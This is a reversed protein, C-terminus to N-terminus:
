FNGIISALFNKTVFCLSHWSKVILHQSNSEYRYGRTLTNRVQPFHYMLKIVKYKTTLNQKIGLCFLYTPFHGRILGSSNQKIDLATKNSQFPSVTAHKKYIWQEYVKIFDQRLSNNLDPVLLGGFEWTAMNVECIRKKLLLKLGTLEILRKLQIIWWSDPRCM